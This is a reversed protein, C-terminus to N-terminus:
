DSLRVCVCLFGCVCKLVSVHEKLLLAALSITETM